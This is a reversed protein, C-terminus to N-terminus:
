HFVPQRSGKWVDLRQTARHLDLRIHGPFDVSCARERWTERIAWPFVKLPYYSEIYPSQRNSTIHGLMAKYIPLLSCPKIAREQHLCHQWVPRESNQACTSIGNCVLSLRVSTSHLVPVTRGDVPSVDKALSRSNSLRTPKALWHTKSVQPLISQVDPSGPAAVM